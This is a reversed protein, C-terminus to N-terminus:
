YGLYRGITLPSCTLEQAGGGSVQAMALRAAALGKCTDTRPGSFIKGWLATKTSKKPKQELNAVELQRRAFGLNLLYHEKEGVQVYTQSTHVILLVDRACTCACLCVLQLM